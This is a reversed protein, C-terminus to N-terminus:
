IQNDSECKPSSQGFYELEKFYTKKPCLLKTLFTFETSTNSYAIRFSIYMIQWFFFFIFLLVKTLTIFRQRYNNNIVGCIHFM